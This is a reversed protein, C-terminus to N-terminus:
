NKKSTNGNGHFREESHTRAAGSIWASQTDSRARRGRLTHSVHRENTKVLVNCLGSSTALAAVTLAKGRRRWWRPFACWLRMPVVSSYTCFLM